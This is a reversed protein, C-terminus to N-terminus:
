ISTKTTTHQGNKEHVKYKHKMIDILNQVNICDYGNATIPICNHATPCVELIRSHGTIEAISYAMSQNGIFLESGLIISALEAFNSVSKYKMEPLKRKIVEYEEELGVFTILHQYPL